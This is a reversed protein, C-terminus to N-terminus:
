HLESGIWKREMATGTIQKNSLSVKSIALFAPLWMVYLSLAVLNTILFCPIFISMTNQQLIKALGEIQYGGLFLSL